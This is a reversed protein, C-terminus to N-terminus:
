EVKGMTDSFEFRLVMNHEGPLFEIVGCPNEPYEIDDISIVQCAHPVNLKAVGGAWDPAANHARTFTPRSVHGSGTTCGVFVTLVAVFLIIYSYKKM